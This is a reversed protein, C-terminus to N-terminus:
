SADNTNQAALAIAEEVNRRYSDPSDPDIEISYKTRLRMILESHIKRKRQQQWRQTLVPLSEDFSKTTAERRTKLKIFHVGFRSPVPGIWEALPMTSLAAAFDDGFNVGIDELSAESVVHPLPFEDGLTAARTDVADALEAALSALREDDPERLYVHVFGVRPALAFQEPHANYLARLESPDPDPSARDEALFLMKQVLRQRVIHDHQDLGLAIAERYLLEDEVVRRDAQLRQAASLEEVGLTSRMAQRASELQLHHLQIRDNAPEALLLYLAGGIVLFHVIPNEVFRRM